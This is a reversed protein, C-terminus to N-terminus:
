KLLLKSLSNLRELREKEEIACLKDDVHRQWARTISSGFSEKVIKPDAQLVAVWHKDGRGGHYGGSEYKTVEIKGDPYVKYDFGDQVACWNNFSGREGNEDFSVCLNPKAYLDSHKTKWPDCWEASVITVTGEIIGKLLPVRYTTYPVRVKGLVKVMKM